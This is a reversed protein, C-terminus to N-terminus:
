TIVTENRIEVEFTEPLLEMFIDFAETSRYIDLDGDGDIDMHKSGVGVCGLLQEVYNVRHFLIYSRNPVNQILVHDYNFSGSEAAKRKRCSYTGQPICSIRRQNDRWPLELTKFVFICKDGKYIYGTGLTQKDGKKWGNHRQIFVRTKM